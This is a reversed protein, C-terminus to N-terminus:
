GVQYDFNDSFLMLVEVAAIYVQAHGAEDPYVYWPCGIMVFSTLM